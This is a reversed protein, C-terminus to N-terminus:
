RDDQPAPFGWAACPTPGGPSSWVPPHSHRHRLLLGVILRNPLRCLHLADVLLRGRAPLELDLRELLPQRRSDIRWGRTPADLSVSGDNPSIGNNGMPAAPWHCSRAWEGATATKRPPTVMPTRYGQRLIAVDKPPLCREGVSASRNSSSPCNSRRCPWASAASSGSRRSKACNCPSGARTSESAWHW